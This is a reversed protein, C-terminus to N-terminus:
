SLYVLSEIMQENKTLSRLSKSVTAWKDQAIQVFWECDSMQNSRFSRHAILSHTFEWGQENALSMLCIKFAVDFCVLYSWLNTPKKFNKCWHALTALCVAVFYTTPQRLRSALKLFVNKRNVIIVTWFSAFYNKYVLIEGFFKYNSLPLFLYFFM